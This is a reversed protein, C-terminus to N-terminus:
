RKSAQRFSSPNVFGPRVAQRRNQDVSVAMCHQKGVHPAGDHTEDAPTKDVSPALYMACARNAYPYTPGRLCTQM